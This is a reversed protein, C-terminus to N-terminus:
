IADAPVAARAKRRARKGNARMSKAARGRASVASAAAAQVRGIALLWHASRLIQERSQWGAKAWFRTLLTDAKDILPSPAKAYSRITSIENMLSDRRSQLAAVRDSYKATSTRRRRGIATASRQKAV